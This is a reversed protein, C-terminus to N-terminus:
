SFTDVAVFHWSALEAWTSDAKCSLFESSTPGTWLFFPTRWENLRKGKEVTLSPLAHSGRRRCSDPQPWLLAARLKLVGSQPGIPFAVPWKVTRVVHTKLSHQWPKEFVRPAKPGEPDIGRVLCENLLRADVSNVLKEVLAADSRSQQNGITNYNSERDGFYRWAEPANWLGAQELLDIVEAESDAGMLALCLDRAEDNTM